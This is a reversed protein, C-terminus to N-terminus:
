GLDYWGDFLPYYLGARIIRGPELAQFLQRYATVQGRYKEGEAPLFEDREMGQLDSIKYDIIWREGDKAVFTRDVKAHILRGDLVGSLATECAGEAHPHLIWRGRESALTTGLAREVQIIVKDMRDSAVGLQALRHAAAAAEAKVRDMNWSGSGEAAIRELLLHLVTGLARREGNGFGPATDGSEDRIESPRLAAPGAEVVNPALPPMQRDGPLRRLSLMPPANVPEEDASAAEMGAFRDAV